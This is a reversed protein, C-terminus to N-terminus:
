RWCDCDPSHNQRTCRRGSPGFLLIAQVATARAVHRYGRNQSGRRWRWCESEASLLAQSPPVIPGCLITARSGCRSCPLCCAVLTPFTTLDQAPRNRGLNGDAEGAAALSALWTLRAHKLQGADSRLPQSSPRGVILGAHEISGMKRECGDLAHPLDQRPRRRRRLKRAEGEGSGQTEQKATADRRKCVHLSQM